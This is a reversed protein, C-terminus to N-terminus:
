VARIFRVILRALNQPLKQLNTIDLFGDGYIREINAKDDGIAAAFMIIGRNTYERRIGRLDAEAETGHYGSDHPQGDSILILLRLKEPRKLLREAVYRLAAGDRNCDRSSMDMLRYCDKRDVSEFDAYSFLDVHKSSATHGMIMVPIELSRCFEYIVISAARATTIRDNSCMSGSEDVLLAVSLDCGDSPLRVKSYYRGDNHVLTRSELRRGMMLGSLKGGQKKDKLAQLVQKQMRRALLLLAPAIRSYEQVLQVPVDVMRNVTVHIGKHANGYRIKSSEAQLESSLEQEMMTNVREEAMSDLLREIDSGCNEYGAGGYCNNRYVGGNNDDEISDTLTLAMRGTEYDLVKRIEQSDEQQQKPDPPTYGTTCKVPKGSGKPQVSAQQNGNTVVQLAQKPGQKKAEEIIPKIYRWMKLMMYNSATCRSKADDDYKCDDVYPVCEIFADLYEGAYGELNNIEGCLCYQFILNRVISLANVGADISAQISLSQDTIRSNNILIGTRFTGPFDQFMRAEIYTDETINILDHAIKHIVELAAENKEDLLNELELLANEDAPTLGDRPKSPFFHGSLLEKSHTNITRFDTYLIHAAEHAALGVLSDAKLTRTPFSMSLNNGTNITITRNDTWAVDAGPSPEWFTKVKFPRRYRKSATEAIDALYGRFAASAFLEEDTIKGKESLIKRRIERHSTRM